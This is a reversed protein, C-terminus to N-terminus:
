AQECCHFHCYPWFSEGLLVYDEDLPLYSRAVEELAAYDLVQDPPYRAIILKYKGSLAQQLSDYLTGTGDMGPLLLITTM